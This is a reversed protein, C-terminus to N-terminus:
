ELHEHGSPLPKGQWATAAHSLLVFAYALAGLGIAMYFPWHPIRLTNSNSGTEFAHLAEKGCGWAIVSMVLVCALHVLVNLYRAGPRDLLRDLVNITIHGGAYGCYGLGCAIIIVMLHEVLEFAGSIATNFMARMLVDAVNVLMMLLIAAGGLYGIVANFRAFPGTTRTPMM